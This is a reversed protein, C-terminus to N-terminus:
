PCQSQESRRALGGRLEGQVASQGVVCQRGVGALKRPCQAARVWVDFRIFATVARSTVRDLRDHNMRERHKQVIMHLLLDRTVSRSMVVGALSYCDDIPTGHTV